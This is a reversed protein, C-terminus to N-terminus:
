KDEDPATEISSNSIADMASDDVRVSKGRDVADANDMTNTSVDIGKGEEIKEDPDADAEEKTRKRVGSLFVKRGISRYVGEGKYRSLGANAGRQKFVLRM